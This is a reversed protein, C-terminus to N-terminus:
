QRSVCVNRIQGTFPSSCASRGIQLVPLTALSWGANAISNDLTGDITISLTGSLRAVVVHHWVGDNITTISQLDTYNTGDGVEVILTDNAQEAVVWHVYYPNCVARQELLPGAGATSLVDFDVHFDGGRVDSLDDACGNAADGSEASADAVQVDDYHAGADAAVMDRDEDADRGAEPSDTRQDLAGLGSDLPDASAAEAAGGDGQQPSDLTTFPSGDCGSLVIVAIPLWRTPNM